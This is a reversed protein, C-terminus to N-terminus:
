VKLRHSLKILFVNHPYIEFLDRYNDRFVFNGYSDSDTRGQSWVLFLVSGPTYEWRIVLNSRFQFFSYDPKDFQYDSEGDLNEDILFVEDQVNYSIQDAEYLTYRNATEMARSDEIYKYESYKGTSIFPQGYYQVSLDPSLNLDCRISLSFTSQNLSANIYRTYGEEEINEVYQLSRINNSFTPSATLSIANAPRYRFGSWINFSRGEQEDMFYVWGGINFKLRKREDSAFDIWNSWGGNMRLMPGGRLATKSISSGERNIGTGLTWQNMFMMNVNVNGGSFTRDGAFNWGQWHNANISLNRFISFPEYERYNIWLAEMIDDSQRLYGLDNLELGPSRWTFFGMYQWHGGGVKGLQINGGHGSLSTRLTDLSLHEADPRQFYRISSEQLERIADAKGEIHSFVTRATLMYNKDQWYQTFHAGGTYAARPLPEPYEGLTRNTATLMGGIIRNGEHFDKKLSTLLYNTAPEVIESRRVGEKEIVAYERETLSEMIGLSWGYKTKGSLKLAALISTNEPCDAFENDDLEPSHRPTRGIRRSYFLNDRAFGGDGGTIQFDLIDKGEIFFPRKEQFYTEYASLNVESPDAEVQGFDPYVSLDLTLDNSLGIKADLGASIGSSRGEEFPNGEEHQFRDHKAVIYPFLDFRRRPHIGKLGKLEGYNSIWGGADRPIFQWIDLEGERFISRVVQIGWTKEDENGFRLQSLPIQMEATWGWSESQTNVYWIPDWNDDYANGDDSMIGDSKVGSASVAFVFSTRFDHYSDIQIVVLDGEFGDRRSLRRNIKEAEDDYATIAVYLNDDDYLIRFSTPQSASDGEQPEYQTFGGSVPADQWVTDNLSGDIAPGEGQIRTCVYSRTEQAKLGWFQILILLLLFLRRMLGSAEGALAITILIVKRPWYLPRFLDPVM